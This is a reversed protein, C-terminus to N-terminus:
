VVEPCLEGLHDSWWQGFKLSWSADTFCSVAESDADDELIERTSPFVQVKHPLGKVWKLVDRMCTEAAKTPLQRTVVWFGM